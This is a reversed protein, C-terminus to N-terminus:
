SNRSFVRAGDDWQGDGLAYADVDWGASYWRVGVARLAGNVDRVYFINAYGNTILVGEGGKPQREMLSWVESLAVEASTEGGLDTIIETDYATRALALAVLAARPGDETKAQFWSTFNEGRYAIKVSAEGFFTEEVSFSGGSAVPLPAVPRLVNYTRKEATPQPRPSVVLEDRLLSEVGSMGGLKNVVAEVQGLTLNGYKM